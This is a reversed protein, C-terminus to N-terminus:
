DYDFFSLQGDSNASCFSDHYGVNCPLVEGPELIKIIGHRLLSKDFDSLRKYREVPISKFDWM